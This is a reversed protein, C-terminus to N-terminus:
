KLTNGSLVFVQVPYGQYTGLEAPVFGFSQYFARAAGGRKDGERFTEVVVDQGKVLRCLMHELLQQAINQRRYEPHVALFRIKHGAAEAAQFLLAGVIMNGDAAYMAGGQKMYQISTDCFDNMAEDSEMGPFDQRVIEALSMWSELHRFGAMGYQIDHRREWQADFSGRVDFLRDLFWYPIMIGQAQMRILDEKGAWMVQRVEEEQLCLKKLDVDMELIYFDDFGNPFSMTFFPRVKTLDAELGLEEMLERQAAQASSEGSVASGAASVDWMNPWGKKYTQRQQILLQNKSNFICVHVALRYRDKPMSDGRRHTCGTKERDKTYLDWQEDSQESRM